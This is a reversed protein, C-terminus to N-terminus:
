EVDDEGDGGRADDSSDEDEDDEDAGMDEDDDDPFDNFLEVVYDEGLNSVYKDFHSSIGPFDAYINASTAFDEAKALRSHLDEKEVMCVDLHSQVRALEDRSEELDSALKQSDAKVVELESTLNRETATHNSKLEEQSRLLTEYKQTLKDKEALPSDREDRMMRMEEGLSSKEHEFEEAIRASKAWKLSMAYAAETAKMAGLVETRLMCNKLQDAVLSHIPSSVSDDTVEVGSPLVYLTDVFFPHNSKYGEKSGIPMFGVSPDPSHRPSPPRAKNPIGPYWTCQIPSSDLPQENSVGAM